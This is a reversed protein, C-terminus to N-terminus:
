NGANFGKVYEEEDCELKADIFIKAINRASAQLLRLPNQMETRVAGTEKEGSIRNARNNTHVTICNKTPHKTIAHFLSPITDHVCLIACCLIIINVIVYCLTTNLRATCYLATCYLVTFELLKTFFFIIVEKGEKFVFCSVLAVAQEVKLDNFVGDFVMDTLVLEDPTSLECSFRGKTGLVGEPSTYGLRRLVRKMKKLDERM